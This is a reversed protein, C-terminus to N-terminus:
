ISYVSCYITGQVSYIETDISLSVSLETQILHKIGRCRYRIEKINDLRVLCLLCDSHLFVVLELYLLVGKLAAFSINFLFDFDFAVSFKPPDSSSIKILYQM